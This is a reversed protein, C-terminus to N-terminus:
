AAPQAQLGGEIARLLAPPRVARKPVYFGHRNAVPTFHDSVGVVTEAAGLVLCGDPALADAVRRLVDAKTSQDFYILANRLVVLDFRGLLFFDDLLNQQGFRVMQRIPGAIRWQDGTQEFHEMLMHIPLGRQVEFQTYVGAAAKEIVDNSIDTAVIEVSWGALRAAMGKLLIAISYPEQGTSAAASWIRLRKKEARAQILAPITKDRLVEFPVRDRFFFSENIMMAETVSVMLADAGPARLRWVLEAISGCGARRAVPMLRGEVLYQKDNALVLGSRAKLLDCLFKYDFPSM